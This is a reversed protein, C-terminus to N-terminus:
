LFYSAFVDDDDDYNGGGDIEHNQGIPRNRSWSLRLWIPGKTM